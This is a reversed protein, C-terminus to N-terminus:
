FAYNLVFEEQQENELAEPIYERVWQIATPGDIQLVIRSLCALFIGTRGIGAMCHVAVNRGAILNAYVAHLAAAFAEPNDPAHYDRIPYAIVEMGAQRYFAPLDRQARVLYEQKETLVVVVKVNAAQYAVWVEGLRDYNSFPMASRYIKGPLNVSIETLPSQTM